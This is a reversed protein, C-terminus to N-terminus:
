QVGWIRIVGDMGGTAIAAGDRRFALGAIGSNLGGGPNAMAAVVFPHGTASVDWVRAVPDGSTGGAVTWGVPSFAVIGLDAGLEAQVTMSAPTEVNWVRALGGTSGSALMRGDASFSLTPVFDGEHGDWGGLRAPHHPDGVDWLSIAGYGGVALVRGDPSFAASDLPGPFPITAGAVPERRSVVDYLRVKGDHVGVGQSVEVTVVALTRGDPSFAV